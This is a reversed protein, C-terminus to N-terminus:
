GRIHGLCHIIAPNKSKIFLSHGGIVQSLKEYWQRSAQCLGYLSKRLKCVQGPKPPIVGQPVDMYVEEHLEGHLFANNVDLQELCWNQQAALALLLRVTGLKAVLSFSELFDIGETQTFGKAVLRAKYREISGDAKLKIKYVWKCGVTSKGLPLDVFTWTGTQNLASIEANM